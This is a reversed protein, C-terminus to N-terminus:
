MPQAGSRGQTESTSSSQYTMALAIEIDSITPGSYVTSILKNMLSSEHPANAESQVPSFVLPPADIDLLGKSLEDDLEQLWSIETEDVEEM